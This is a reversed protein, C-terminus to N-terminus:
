TKSLENWTTLARSMTEEVPPVTALHRTPEDIMPRDITVPPFAAVLAAELV